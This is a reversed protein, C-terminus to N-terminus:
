LTLALGAVAYAFLTFNYVEDVDAGGELARLGGYITLPRSLRYTLALLVDEARGQPAALADGQVLLGAREAFRWALHVNVLPVFGVDTKESTRGGGELRIAADRVKATLGLGFAVRDTQVLAYRYTLRYSNFRYRSAIPVDAPFAAGDFAVPRGFRGGGEAVLPAYLASFGHRRGLTYTLRLRGALAPDTELDSTLSFRTGADGPVQVDNYLSAAVGGEAEVRLQARAMGSTLGWALCAAFGALLRFRMPNRTEHKFWGESEGGEKNRKGNGGSKGKKGNGFLEGEGRTREEM